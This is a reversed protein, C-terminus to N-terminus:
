FTVTWVVADSFSGSPRPTVSEPLVAVFDATIGPSASVSSAPHTTSDDGLLPEVGTFTSGVYIEYKEWTGPTLQMRRSGTGFFAGSDASITVQTAPLVDCDTIVTFPIQVESKSTITGFDVDPVTITCSAVATMTVSMIDTDTGAMATSWCFTTVGVAFGAKQFLKKQMM